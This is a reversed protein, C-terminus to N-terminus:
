RECGHVDLSPAIVEAGGVAVHVQEEAARIGQVEPYGDRPWPPLGPCRPCAADRSTLVPLDPGSRSTLIPDPRTQPPCDPSAAVPRATGCTACLRRPRAGPM